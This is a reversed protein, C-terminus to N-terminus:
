AQWGGMCASDVSLGFRVGVKKSRKRLAVVSELGGQQSHRAGCAVPQSRTLGVDFDASTTCENTIIHIFM